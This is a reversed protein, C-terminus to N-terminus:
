TGPYKLVALVRRHDIGTPPRGTETLPANRHVVLVEQSRTCITTIWV